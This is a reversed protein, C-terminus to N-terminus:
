EYGPALTFTGNKFSSAENMVVDSTPFGDHSEPSWGYTTLVGPLESTSELAERIAEPETSGGKVVAHRIVEVADNGLATFWLTYDINEAGTATKFDTTSSPLEGGADSMSRYGVAYVKTWNSPSTLLKGTDASALQPHGVVPVDWGAATRANIIRADLGTAASWVMVADAGSARAKNIDSSVDTQAADILAKYTVTGGAGTILREAVDATDTGYGTTDGIIAVKKLKLQELVYSNAAEVWQTNTAIVRFAFPYKQADILQDVTGIIINPTQAQTLVPVVPLAEGSNVPGIVFDVQERRALENAANVAKTPDGQTDRTILEVQRGAIGGSGNIRDVAYQVGRNEAVAAASLPGTLSSIWGIKIPGGGDGGGSATGGVGGGCAAALLAASLTLSLLVVSRRLQHRRMPPVKGLVTAATSAYLRYISEM